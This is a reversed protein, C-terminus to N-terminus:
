GRDQRVAERIGAPRDEDLEIEGADRAAVALSAELILKNIAERLFAKKNPWLGLEEMVREMEREQDLTM